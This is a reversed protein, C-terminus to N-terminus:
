IAEVSIGNDILLDYGIGNIAKKMEELSIEAPEYEVLATRGPLNIAAKKVGKLSSLKKEINAACAACAMGVVPINKKEMMKLKFLIM